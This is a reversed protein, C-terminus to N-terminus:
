VRNRCVSASEGKGIVTVCEKIRDNRELKGAGFFDRVGAGFSGIKGGDFGETREAQVFVFTAELYGNVEVLDQIEDADTVLNNNVIIAIGDIGTDGGKGVM